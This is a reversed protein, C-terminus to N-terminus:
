KEKRNQRHGRGLGCDKLRFNNELLGVDDLSLQGVLNIVCLRRPAAALHAFGALLDGQPFLYVEDIEGGRGRVEVIREWGPAALQARLASLDAATYAGETAFEFGRIYVGRLRALADSLKRQQAPSLMLLRTVARLRLEDLSIEIAETASAALRDLHNIQLPAPQARATAVGLGLWLLSLLCKITRKM